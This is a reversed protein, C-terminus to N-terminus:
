NKVLAYIPAFVESRTILEQPAMFGGGKLNLQVPAELGGIAMPKAYRNSNRAELITLISKGFNKGNLYQYQL